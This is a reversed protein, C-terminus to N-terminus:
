IVTKGGAREAAKGMQVMVIVAIITIIVAYIFEPIIGKGAPLWQHILDTIAVNWALAAIVGFAASFLAIMTALYSARDGM